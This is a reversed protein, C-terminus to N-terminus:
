TWEIEVELGYHDGIIAEEKGDLVVCSRAIKVGQSVFVHDVKLARSNGEWGDIDALITAEGKVIEACAHSDKLHLDSALITRYGEQGTPNNFDGMLVLPMQVGKLAEELRQWEGQFGEVIMVDQGQYCTEAVLVRRTHYDTEDDVDSVLIERATFPTKSLIAVGEHYRNYGSHNKEGAAANKRPSRRGVM